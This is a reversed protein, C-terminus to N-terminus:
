VDDRDPLVQLRARLVDLDVAPHVRVLEVPEALLTLCEAEAGDERTRQDPAGVAGVLLAGGGGEARPSSRGCARTTSGSRTPSATATRTATRSRRSRSSSATQT